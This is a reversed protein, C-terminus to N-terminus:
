FFNQRFGTHLSFMGDHDTIRRIIQFHRLINGHWTNAYTIAYMRRFKQSLKIWDTDHIIHSSQM